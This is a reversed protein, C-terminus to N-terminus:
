SPRRRINYFRYYADCHGHRLADAGAISVGRAAEGSRRADRDFFAEVM